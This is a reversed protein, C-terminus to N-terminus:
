QCLMIIDDCMFSTLKVKIPALYNKSCFNAYKMSINSRKSEINLKIDGSINGTDSIILGLYTIENKYCLFGNNLCLSKKPNISKGNSILYGSKGVNLKLKNEQFYELMMNCKKIILSRDTSLILTDDAHLLVHMSEILPERTCRNRTYDILDNIFVIFLCSSSPAGQRIGSSYM